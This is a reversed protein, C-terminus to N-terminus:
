RACHRLHPHGNTRTTQTLPTLRAQHPGRWIRNRFQALTEDQDFLDGNFHLINLGFSGGVRMNDFLESLLTQSRRPLVERRQALNDLMRKFLDDPLLNVDEVFM